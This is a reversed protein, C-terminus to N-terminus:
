KGKFIWRKGRVPEHIPIVRNRYKLVTGPYATGTVKIFCDGPNHLATELEILKANLAARLKELLSLVGRVRQELLRNESKASGEWRAITELKGLKQELIGIDTRVANLHERKRALEAEVEFDKGVELVTKTGAENGSEHIEISEFAVLHGGIVAHANSKMLVSKKSFLQGNLVENYVVINSHSEIRQNHIFGITVSSLKSKIVGGDGGIVGGKILIAGDSVVQGNEVLGGIGIDGRAQVSFKGLVNGEVEISGPFDLNGTKFSVDEGIKLTDVVGPIGNELALKGDKVAVLITPDKPDLETNPGPEWELPVGAATPVVKGYVDRGDTGPEPPLIRALRDGKRVTRFFTFAKFDVNKVSDPDPLDPEPDVLLQVSGDRGPDPAVGEVLLVESEQGEQLFAQLAERVAGEDRMPRLGLGSLSRKLAEFGSLADEHFVDDERKLDLWASMGDQAIRLTGPYASGAGLVKLRDGSLVLVGAERAAWKKELMVIGCGAAPLSATYPKCPIAKGYVDRGPTGAVISLFSLIEGGEEVLHERRAVEKAREWGMGAIREGMEDIEAPDTLYDLHFMLGEPREHVPPSGTAIRLAQVERLTLAMSGPDSPADFLLAWATELGAAELAGPDIGEAVLFDRFDGKGPFRGRWEQADFDQVSLTAGLGDAAVMIDVRM